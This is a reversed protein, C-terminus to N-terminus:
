TGTKSKPAEGGSDAELERWRERIEELWEADAEDLAEQFEDWDDPNLELHHFDEGTFSVVTRRPPLYATPGMDVEAEPEVDAPPTDAPPTDLSRRIRSEWYDAEWREYPDYAWRSMRRRPAEPLQLVYVGPEVDQTIGLDADSATAYNGRGDTHLSGGASRSVWMERGEVDALIVNAFGEDGLMGLAHEVGGAELWEGILQSDVDHNGADPHALCGNHFYYVGQGADWGHTNRLNVTGQTAWRSHLIFREWKFNRLALLVEDVRLTRLHTVEGSEPILLLSLGDPNSDADRRIRAEAARGWKDASLTLLTCM